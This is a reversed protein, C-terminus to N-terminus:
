SEFCSSVLAAAPSARGCSDNHTSDLSGADEFCDSDFACMFVSVKLHSAQPFVAFSSDPLRWQHPQLGRAGNAM